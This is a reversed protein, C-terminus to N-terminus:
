LSPKDGCEIGLDAPHSARSRQEDLMGSSSRVKPERQLRDPQAIVKQATRAARAYREFVHIVNSDM